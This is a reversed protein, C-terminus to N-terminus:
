PEDSEAQAQIKSGGSLLETATEQFNRVKEPAEIKKGIFFVSGRLDKLAEVGDELLSINKQRYALSKIIQGWNVM